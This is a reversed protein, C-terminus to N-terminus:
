VSLIFVIYKREIRSTRNSWSTRITWPSGVAIILFIVIFKKCYLGFDHFFM